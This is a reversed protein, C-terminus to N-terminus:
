PCIPPCPCPCLCPCARPRTLTWRPVEQSLITALPASAGERLSHGKPGSGSARSNYSAQKSPAGSTLSTSEHYVVSRGGTAGSPGRSLSSGDSGRSSTGTSHSTSYSHSQSRSHSPSKSYSSTSVPGSMASSKRAGVGGRAGATFSGSGARQLSVVSRGSSASAANMAPLRPATHPSSSYLSSRPSPIGYATLPIGAGTSYTTGGTSFSASSSASSRSVGHASGSGPGTHSPSRARAPSGPKSSSSGFGLVRGGFLLGVEPAGRTPSAPARRSAAPSVLAMGTTNEIPATRLNAPRTELSLDDAVGFALRKSQPTGSTAPSGGRQRTGRKPTGGQGGQPRGQGPNRDQRRQPTLAGSPRRSAPDPSLGRESQGKTRSDWGISSGPSGGASGRRPPTLSGAVRSTSVGMGGRASASTSFSGSASNLPAGSNIHSSSSHRSRSVTPSGFRPTGPQSAGSIRSQDYRGRLSVSPFSVDSDFGPGVPDSGQAFGRSTDTSRPSHPAVSPQPSSLGWPRLLMGSRMEAEQVVGSGWGSSSPSGQPPDRARGASQPRQQVQQSHQEMQQSGPDNQPHQSRQTDQSHQLNQSPSPQDQSTQLSSLSQRNQRAAAQLGARLSASFAPHDAHAGRFALRRVPSPSPARAAGAQAAGSGAGFSAGAEAGAGADADPGQGSMTASGSAAPPSSGLIRGRDAEARLRHAGEDASAERLWGQQSVRGGAYVEDRFRESQQAKSPSMPKVSAARPIGTQVDDEPGRRRPTKASPSPALSISEREREGEREGETRRYM